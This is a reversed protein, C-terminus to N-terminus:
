APASAAVALHPLTVGREARAKIGLLMRRTMVATVPTMVVGALRLPVRPRESRSRSILRCSGASTPVIHFSWVANWPLSPPSERLVLSSPPELRVVPLVVGDPQGMWGRPTLRIGDGVRLTQWEAVIQDASHIHLGAFNELVDYSYFGGRDQGIQVLWTWVDAAPAQIPVALTTMDARDRILEDGPLIMWREAPTAGWDRLWRRTAFVVVGAVTLRLWGGM